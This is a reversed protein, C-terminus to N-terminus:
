KICMSIALFVKLIGQILLSVPGASQPNRYSADLLTCGVSINNNSKITPVLLWSTINRSYSSALEGPIRIGKNLVHSSTADLGDVSWLVHAGIGSCTFICIGSVNEFAVYVQDKSPAIEIGVAGTTLLLLIM